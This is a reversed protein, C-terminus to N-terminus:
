GHDSGCQRDKNPQSRARFPLGDRNIANPRAHNDDRGDSKKTDSAPHQPPSRSKASPGLAGSHIQRSNASTALHMPSLGFDRVSLVVQAPSPLRTKHQAPVTSVVLTQRM